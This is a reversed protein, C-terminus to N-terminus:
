RFAIGGSIVMMKSKPFAPRTTSGPQAAVSYFRLDVSVALHKNTFWRAGGGYNITRARSGEGLPEDTREATFTASGIGGSIYSWGDRKGFNLSLQPAFSSLQTEVTPGEEEAADATPLTRHDRAALFEAGLGLAVRKGRLPYLHAGVVFGLGRTPLNVPRVGIAAAIGPDEKFRALTIRADVVYRGIPQALQARADTAYHVGILFVIGCLARRRAWTAARRETTFM